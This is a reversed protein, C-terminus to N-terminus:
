SNQVIKISVFRDFLFIVFISFVKIIEFFNFDRCFLQLTGFESSLNQNLKQDEELVQVTRHFEFRLSSCLKELSVKEIM